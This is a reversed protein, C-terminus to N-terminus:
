HLIAAWFCVSSLRCFRAATREDSSSAIRLPAGSWRRVVVISCRSVKRTSPWDTYWFRGGTSRGIRDLEFIEKASREDVGEAAHLVFPVDKAAAQFKAVLEPEMAFSHAWGMEAVVHIPFNDGLLEPELPNHHCVTTVGIAPQSDSGVM